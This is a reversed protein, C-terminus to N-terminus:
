RASGQEAKWKLWVAKARNSWEADGNFPKGPVGFRWWRPDLGTIRILAEVAICRMYVRRDDLHRFSEDFAEIGRGAVVRAQDILLGYSVDKGEAIEVNPGGGIEPIDSDRLREREIFKVLGFQEFLQATESVEASNAACCCIWLTLLIRM